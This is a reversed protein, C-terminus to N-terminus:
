QMKEKGSVVNSIHRGKWKRGEKRKRDENRRESKGNVDEM